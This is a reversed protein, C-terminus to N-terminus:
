LSLHLFFIDDILKQNNILNVM